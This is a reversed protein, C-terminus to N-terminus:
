YLCVIPRNVCNQLHKLFFNEIIKQNKTTKKTRRHFRISKDLSENDYDAYLKRDVEPANFFADQFAKTNIQKTKGKYFRFGNLEGMKTVYWCMFAFLAASENWIYRSEANTENIFEFYEEMTDFSEHHLIIYKRKQRDFFAMEEKVIGCKVLDCKLHWIFFDLVTVNGLWM